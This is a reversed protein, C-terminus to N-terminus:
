KIVCFLNINANYATIDVSVYRTGQTIWQGQKLEAIIAETENKLYHLTQAYRFYFFIMFKYNCPIFDSFFTFNLAYGNGSYSGIAGSHTAAELAESSQWSWSILFYM